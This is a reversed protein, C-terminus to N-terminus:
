SLVVGNTRAEVLVPAPGTEWAEGSVPLASVTIGHDFSLQWLLDDLRRLEDWPEVPGNFVVMLDIDSDPDADGRAHSGFLVVTALRDGYLGRLAAAAESAVGAPGSPGIHDERLAALASEATRQDVLGAGALWAIAHSRMRRDHFRHWDTRLDPFEYMTDKFRRFAGRGEIARSLLERPRAASIQNVFTAMDEWGERSGVPEIRVLGRGDFDESDDDPSCYEVAGTSPDVWWSSEYSNDKLATAVDDLDIAALDLLAM